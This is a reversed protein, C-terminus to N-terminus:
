IDAASGRLDLPDRLDALYTFSSRIRTGNRLSIRSGRQWADMTRRDRRFMHALACPPMDYMRATWRLVSRPTKERM